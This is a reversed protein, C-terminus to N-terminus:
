QPSYCEIGEPNGAFTYESGTKHVNHGIFQTTGVLSMNQLINFILIIRNM